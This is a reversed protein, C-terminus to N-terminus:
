VKRALYDMARNLEPLRIRRRRLGHFHKSLREGIEPAIGGGARDFISAAIDPKGYTLLVLIAALALRSGEQDGLIRRMLAEDNKLFLADCFAIRGARDGMGHSPNVVGFSNRFRYRKIRSIDVLDFGLERMEVIISDFTKLGRYREFFSVEIEALIVDEALTRRAGSLIAHEGGQVDIKLADIKLANAATINDLSDTPAEFESVVTTHDSKDWFRALLEANPLLTSTMSVRKTVRIAARGPGEAVAFPIYRDRESSTSKDLPDFLVATVNKRIPTWRKHIGGASGIDALIIQFDDPLAAALTAINM